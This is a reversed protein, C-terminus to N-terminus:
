AAVKDTSGFYKLFLIHSYLAGTFSPNDLYPIGFEQATSKVIESIAPYHVHCVTPFLHHEVQFNLGGVYWNLIRNRRAFNATTNMQHVAWDNMVEGTEDPMPFTTGEVTHALQFVVSLVLGCIMHMMVFGLIFLGTPYHFFYLPVFVACFLYILKILIVTIVQQRFEAKGSRNVEMKRYVFTQVFDKVVVWYLTLLSYFFFAYIHQLKYAVNYKKYPSLRMMQAENIDDDHGHINTYTHHRVNHQLKWNFVAGGILCLSYGVWRNVTANSSYANHNADHMVAM